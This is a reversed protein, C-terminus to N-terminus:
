LLGALLYLRKKPGRPSAGDGAPFRRELGSDNAGVFPFDDFRKTEYHGALIVVQPRAGPIRGIVNVMPVRGLPTAADFRDEEAAVRAEHLGRLIVKRAEELARSGSPRPGLAVLRKLDGFARGGNFTLPEAACSSAVLLLWLCSAWGLRSEWRRGRLRSM